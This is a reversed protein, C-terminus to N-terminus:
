VDILFSQGIMSCICWLAYKYTNKAARRWLKSSFRLTELSSALRRSLDGFVFYLKIPVFLIAILFHM